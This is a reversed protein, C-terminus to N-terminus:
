ADATEAVAPPGTPQQTQGESEAAPPKAFAVMLGGTLVAAAAPYFSWGPVEGLWLYAVIAASLFQTMVLLSVTQGPLHRMANNILSHGIVTPIVTLAAIWRWEVSWDIAAWRSGFGAWGSGPAAAVAGNHGVSLFGGPAAAIFSGAILCLLAASAYLPVLYLWVTPHHRYRRALTLYGALLLMSGFCVADGRFHAGSAQFDTVFLVAVGLLTVVTAALETRSLREGVILWLLLPTVLPVVNVILTSNAAPTMRAGTIWSAFHLALLVGPIAADRFHRWTVTKRHRWWDIAFLPSLIAAAGALRLGSLLLPDVASEKIFVIALSCSVVGILLLLVPM